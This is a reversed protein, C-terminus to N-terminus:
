THPEVSTGILRSIDSAHLIIEDCEVDEFPQNLSGMWVPVGRLVWIAHGPLMLPGGDTIRIGLEWTM